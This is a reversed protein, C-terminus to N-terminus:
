RRRLTIEVKVPRGRKVPGIPLFGPLDGTVDRKPQVHVQGAWDVGFRSTLTIRGGLLRRVAGPDVAAGTAGCWQEIPIVFTREEDLLSRFERAGVRLYFTRGVQQVVAEFDAVTEDLVVAFSGVAEPWPRCLANIARIKQGLAVPEALRALTEENPELPILLCLGEAAAQRAQPSAEGSLEALRRAGIADLVSRLRLDGEPLDEDPHLLPSLDAAEGCAILRTIAERFDAHDTVRLRRAFRALNADTVRGSFERSFSDADGGGRVHKVARLVLGDEAGADVLNAASRGLSHMIWFLAGAIGVIVLFILLPKVPIMSWFTEEPPAPAPRRRQHVIGTVQNAGCEPCAVMGADLPAGCIICAKLEKKEEPPPVGIWSDEGLDTSAWEFKGRVQGIKFSEGCKTCVGTKGIGETRTRYTRRCHPCAVRIM